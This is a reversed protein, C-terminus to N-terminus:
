NQWSIVGEIRGMIESTIEDIPRTGDVSVGGIVRAIRRYLEQREALYEVSPIDDKRRMAEEPTIELLVVAQPRPFLRLWASRLLRDLEHGKAAFASDIDIMTDYVYRDLVVLDTARDLKSLAVRLSIYIDVMTLTRWIARLLSNEFVSRKSDVYAAYAKGAKTGEGRKTEQPAGLLAKGIKILPRTLYSEGRMWVVRASVGKARLRDCVLNAQTTKGSGDLGMLVIMKRKM